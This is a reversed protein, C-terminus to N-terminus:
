QRARAEAPLPERDNSDPGGRSLWLSALLLALFVAVTGSCFGLTFVLWQNM